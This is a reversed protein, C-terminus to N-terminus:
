ATERPFSDLSLYDVNSFYELEENKQVSHLAILALFNCKLAIPLEQITQFNHTQM